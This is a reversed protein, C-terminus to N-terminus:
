RPQAEIPGTVETEVPYGELVTPVGARYKGDLLYVVIAPDGIPSRGVAVGTVGPQALLTAENRRLVGQIGTLDDDPPNCPVAAQEQTPDSM